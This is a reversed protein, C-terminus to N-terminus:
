VFNLIMNMYMYVKLKADVAAVIAQAAALSGEAKAKSARAAELQDM